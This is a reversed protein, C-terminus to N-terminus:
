RRRVGMRRTGGGWVSISWLRSPEGPSSGRANKTALSRRYHGRPESRDGHEKPTHRLPRTRSLHGRAPGHGLKRAHRPRRRARCLVDRGLHRRQRRGCRWRLLRPGGRLRLSVAGRRGRARARRKMIWKFGTLTQEFDAGLARAVVGLLQSSVVTTVVCSKDGGLSKLRDYGLLVGIQDGSLARYGNATRVAVALRDADPDNALVLPAGIQEGLSVVADMAGPEEPNPFRVTPFGGDPERQTTVTQVKTFGSNALITETCPAGVGHLPTYAIPFASRNGKDEHVSLSSVRALYREILEDGFHVIRGSDVADPFEIWPLEASAAVDIADAIGKDHPPIIQAGNEWYVKYGNYEPPNHSATVVVAACASRDRLAFACVPTPVMQDALYVRFGLAALVCATDSAFVESDNRGDYGVVIGREAAGDLKALLYTALGASTERVVLRNMRMPGAGVVGRLGATGFALRGAFRATLEDDAEADVLAELERRTVPDPDREIWRKIEQDM